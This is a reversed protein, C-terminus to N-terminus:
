STKTTKTAREALRKKHPTTAQKMERYTMVRKSTVTQDLHQQLWQKVDKNSAKSFKAKITSPTPNLLLGAFAAVLSTFGGKAHQRELQKYRAFSSELIETSLPLREGKKVQSEAAGVFALLREAMDRSLLHNLGTTLIERLQQSAGAFVGQTNIFELGQTIVQQCENWAALDEVFARLWGLKNELRCATLGQRSKAEPHNLLWLVTQAWNLLTGLNMFRAKTKLGPPTLHALETQQIAARTRGVEATFDTFRPNQGLATELFNAAKHKFDQLTICDTRQTKLVGASERLEVAGDSLIQRPVGHVEALEAYVRAVDERKWSKGPRVALVRMDAMRLATGPPPMRSARITLVVLIKEQGIQNSHDAMWVWDDAPGLPEQMIAVGLRQMWNRVTTHHPVRQGVGMWTFCIQMVKTASRFGVIQALRISLEVMRVGYGHRGLPPDAPLTRTTERRCAELERELCRVQAASELVAAELVACQGTIELVKRSAREYDDRLMAYKNVSLERSRLLFAVVVRLPSKFQRWAKFSLEAV